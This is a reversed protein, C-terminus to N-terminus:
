DYKVVKIVEDSIISNKVINAKSAKNVVIKQRNVVLSCLVPKGGHIIVSHFTKM